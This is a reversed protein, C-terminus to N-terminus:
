QLEGLVAAGRHQRLLLLVVWCIGLPASYIYCAKYSLIKTSTRASLVTCSVAGVKVRLMPKQTM